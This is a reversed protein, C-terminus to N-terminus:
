WSCRYMLESRGHQHARARPVEFPEAAGASGGNDWEIEEPSMWGQTYPETATDNWLCRIHWYIQYSTSSRYYKTSAVICGLKVQTGGRSGTDVATEGQALVRSQGMDAIKLCDEKFLLNSPKLDRHTIAGSALEHLYALGACLEACATRRAQVPALATEFVLQWRGGGGRNKITSVILM